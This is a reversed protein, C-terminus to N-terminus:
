LGFQKYFRGRIKMLESDKVDDPKFRFVKTFCDRNVMIVLHEAIEIEPYCEKIMRHYFALQYKYAEIDELGKDRKTNKFDILYIKGDHGLALLDFKGAIKFKTSYVAVEQMIANKVIKSFKLLSAKFMKRAHKEEETERVALPKGSLYQEYDDHLASGIDCAKQTYADAFEAGVKERWQELYTKDGVVQLVTTVSPYRFHENFYVRGIGDVNESNIDM